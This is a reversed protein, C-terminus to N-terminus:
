VRRRSRGLLPIPVLDPTLDKQRQFEDAAQLQAKLDAERRDLARYLSAPSLNFMKAAQYATMGPTNDFLWMAKQTKRHPHRPM